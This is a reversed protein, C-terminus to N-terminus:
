IMDSVRRLSSIKRQGFRSAAAVPVLQRRLLSILRESQSNATESCFVFAEKRRKCIKLTIMIM